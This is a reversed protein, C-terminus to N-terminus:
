LNRRELLPKFIYILVSVSTTLCVKKLCCPKIVSGQAMCSHFVPFTIWFWKFVTWLLFAKLNHFLNVFCFFLSQKFSQSFFYYWCCCFGSRINLVMWRGIGFWSKYFKARSLELIWCTWFPMVTKIVFPETEVWRMVAASVMVDPKGIKCM